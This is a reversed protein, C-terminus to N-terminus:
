LAPFLSSSSISQFHDCASTVSLGQALSTAHYLWVQFHWCDRSKRIALPECYYRSPLKWPATEALPQASTNCHMSTESRHWESVSQLTPKSLNSPPSRSPISYQPSRVIGRDINQWVLNIMGKRTCLLSVILIYNAM